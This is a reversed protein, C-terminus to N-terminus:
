LGAFGDGREIHFGIESARTAGMHHSATSHAAIFFHAHDAGIALVPLQGVYGNMVTRDEGGANAGVRLQGDVPERVPKRRLQGLPQCPFVNLQGSWRGLATLWGGAVPQWLSIDFRMAVSPRTPPTLSGAM